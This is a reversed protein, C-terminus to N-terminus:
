KVLTFNGNVFREEGLSTYAKLVVVYTGLGQLKGNYEGNWGPSAGNGEYVLEGYRNYIMYSEIYGSGSYLPLWNDNFGDGNPSFATPLGVELEGIVNITITDVDTCGNEDVGTVIYSTTDSPSAIPNPIDTASLGFSPTWTYTEAGTAELQSTEGLYSDITSPDATVTIDLTSFVSVEVQDTNVCGHEDIGTVTYTTTENVTCDPDPCDDCSLETSPSWTYEEAGTAELQISGEPCLDVDQGASVEPLAWVTVTVEDEAPCNYVDLTTLLYDYVGPETINATPDPCDSCSLYTSPSWSYLNEFAGGDGPLVVTEGLCLEVDVGASAFENEDVQVTIQLTADGCFGGVGTITYTTTETVTAIVSIGTDTSLGTTPSWTWEYDEAGIISLEVTDGENCVTATDGSSVTVDDATLNYTVTAELAEDLDDVNLIYAFAVCKCEGPNITEIYFSISNAEDATSSGSGSYGGTADWVDQPSGDNTGFLGYSVRANEDRAGIGLFCGYTLGESTVLAEPDGPPQYVIENYTTYDGSWPQDNDPDVNRKYYVDELAEDGNNCLLIRTVFYLKDEPLTTIQTVDLDIGGPATINGTWVGTYIGAAFTYDTVDGPIEAGGCGQDTNTWWDDGIQIQWGEVPSGPVFYDGCYDPTGSNWGDSEWDAVFGLGGETPHYGAPPATPSGYAGCTNIGVEVFEGKLFVNAGVIQAKATSATLFLITILISVFYSKSQM